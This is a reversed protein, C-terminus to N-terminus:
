VVYRLPELRRCALDSALGVELMFMFAPSWCAFLGDLWWEVGEVCMLVGVCGCVDVCLGVGM